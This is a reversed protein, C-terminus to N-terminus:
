NLNYYYKVINSNKSYKQDFLHLRPSCLLSKEFVHLKKSVGFKPNTTYSIHNSFLHSITDPCSASWNHARRMERVLPVCYTVKIHLFSFVESFVATNCEPFHRVLGTRHKNHCLACKELLHFRLCTYRLSMGSVPITISINTDVSDQIGRWLVVGIGIFQEYM